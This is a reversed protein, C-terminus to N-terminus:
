DLLAGLAFGTWILAPKVWGDRLPSYYCRCRPHLPIQGASPIGGMPNFVGHLEYETGCLPPCLGGRCRDTVDPECEHRVGRIGNGVFAWVMGLRNMRVSETAAIISSRIVTRGLVWASLGPLMDAATVGEDRKTVIEGAIEEATTVVTSRRAGRRTDVLRAAAAAVAALVTEDTAEFQGYLGLESVGMQGGLNLARRGFARYVDGLREVPEPEEEYYALVSRVIEPETQGLMTELGVAIPRWYLTSLAPQVQRAYDTELLLEGATPGDRLSRAGALAMGATLADHYRAAAPMMTEVAERWRGAGMASPM